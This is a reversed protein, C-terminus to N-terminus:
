IALLGGDELLEVHNWGNLFPPMAEPFREQFAIWTDGREDSAWRHLVAGSPDMLMATNEDTTRDDTASPCASYEHCSTPASKRTLARAPVKKPLTRKDAEQPRDAWKESGNTMSVTM